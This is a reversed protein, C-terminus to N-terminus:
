FTNRRNTSSVMSIPARELLAHAFRVPDQSIAYGWNPGWHISLIIVDRPRRIGGVQEAIRAVGTESMDTLLNVGATERTAAWSQPVGSTVSAFAFVVIRGRGGIDLIAPASAETIDRGAGAFEIKLKDLTTLTDLLRARGWDLVHNNALICCDIGAASLCSANEPSMRYNIGKPALLVRKSISSALM